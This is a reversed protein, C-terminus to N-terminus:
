SPKQSLKQRVKLEEMDIIGLYKRILEEDFETRRNVEDLWARQHELLKLYIQRYHTRSDDKVGILDPEEFFRIDLQFKDILNKLHKNREAVDGYNENLHELSIQAMKRQIIIDQEEPPIKSFKDELKIKRIIWPLTLGQFVLTVLIVIFTIFLILNRFPFPQTNNILIPISLAAALSVVGRMGAWGAIFPGKWGPNPDAVKIFNSMFKTFVAAGLTCLLRTIILVLSILLGYSIATSLSINGLQEMIVPLQLGMMLFILGNMVFVLNTWVNVGEIRSRYTLMSLRKTSLFLGGSVVALVGSFHFHEAAYYMCYPTILTLVIEISTIKILYRHIVYFIFGLALGIILGMIVVILFRSAAQQFNFQGTIIAVLAFRFVILSAADNLLSEGEIISLLSKPVKVRKMITTASIADPPSVIGGLLFGLALTFGPIFAKSVFAVVCSTIIVVPFAFSAIVRKWKWFEKWSVQWAAEYLLPPLFIFFVADPDVTINSFGSIFSLLVGGVVLVIPYAVHIRNALMVLGLIILILFIYQILVAPM